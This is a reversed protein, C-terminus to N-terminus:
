LKTDGVLYTVVTANSRKSMRSRTSMKYGVNTSQRKEGTAASRVLAHFAERFNSSFMNYLIPNLASNLLLFMYCVVVLGHHVHAHEFMDVTFGVIQFPLGCVVFTMTLVILLKTVKKNERRVVVDQRSWSRERSHQKYSVDRIVLAYAVSMVLLPIAYQLLFNFMTYTENTTTSWTPKCTTTNHSIDEHTELAAMYPTVLVFSLAWIVVISIKAHCTRPQPSLPRVIAYYRSTSLVMLTFVSAFVTATQLPFLLACIFGGYIWNGGNMELPIELPICLVGVALDAFSLNLIMWNPFTQMKRHLIVVTAVITNGIINFTLIIVYITVVVNHPILNHSTANTRNM